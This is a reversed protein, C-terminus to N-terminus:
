ARLRAVSAGRVFHPLLLRARPPAAGDLCRRIQALMLRTYRVTGARYTTPEPTLFSFLADDRLAILSVDQPVRLRRAGLVGIVTLYTTPQSVLLGTVPEKADLLRTVTRAVAPTGPTLHEIRGMARGAAAECFGRETELDGAKSEGDILLALRTHGAALLRGTAHRAIAAHDTDVCALNIGPFPTGALITQPAHAALWRQMRETALRVIWCDAREKAFQAALAPEPRAGYCRRQEILRFNVGQEALEGRLGSADLLRIPRSTVLDGPSLLCVTKGKAHSEVAAGARLVLRTGQGRRSEVWGDARLTALAARLSGRSVKLEDALVREHPLWETWRRSEIGARLEAIM